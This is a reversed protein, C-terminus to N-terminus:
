PNTPLPPNCATNFTITGFATITPSGNATGLESLGAQTISLIASLSQQLTIGEVTTNGSIDNCVDTGTDQSIIVISDSIDVAGNNSFANNTIRLRGTPGGGAVDDDAFYRIGESATNAIRNNNITLNLTKTGDRHLVQIGDDGIGPFTADNGIDNNDIQITSTTTSTIDTDIRIGDGTALGSILNNNIRGTITGEHGIFIGDGSADIISNNLIDFTFTSLPGEASFTFAPPTPFNDPGGTGMDVVGTLNLDLVGSNQVIANIAGGELDIFRTTSATSSTRTGTVNLTINATGDAAVDIGEEGNTDSNNNIVVDTVDITLTGSVNGVHIGVDEFNQITTGTVVLRGTINTVGLSDFFLASENDGDGPSDLLSNTISFTPTGGGSGDTMGTGLVGHRGTNGIYMRDIVVNSASTLSIGDSTTNQIAGGTCTGASTCSGGNGTVNLGGVSGTTNLVIGSAAGTASISRFTLDAAGITTSVVNLATGTTSTITNNAGTVAVTAGAGGSANFGM